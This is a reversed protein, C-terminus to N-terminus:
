HWNPVVRELLTYEVQNTNLKEKIKWIFKSLTLYYQIDFFTDCRINNKIHSIHINDIYKEYHKFITKYLQSGGAIFIKKKPYKILIDDIADELHSFFFIDQNSDQKYDQNIQNLEQELEVPFRTLVYIIRNKLPPLSMFTKRGVVLIHGSTIRSFLKLDEPCKWPIKNENGIGYDDNHALIVDFM